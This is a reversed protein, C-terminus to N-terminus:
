KEVGSYGVKKLDEMVGIVIPVNSKNPEKESPMHQILEPLALQLQRLTSCGYAVQKIKRIAEKRATQRDYYKALVDSESLNGVFVGYNTQDTFVTLQKLHKRLEPSNYIDKIEDPFRAVFLEQVKDKSLKVEPINNSVSRIFSDRIWNTLKM